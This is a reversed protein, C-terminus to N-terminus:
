LSTHPCPLPALLPDGMTRLLSPTGQFWTVGEAVLLDLLGPGLRVQEDSLAVLPCGITWAAYWEELCSDLSPSAVTSVADVGPVLEWAGAAGLHHSVHGAHYCACGKPRGTTGSTFYVASLCNKPDQLWDPKSRRQTGYTALSLTPILPVHLEYLCKEFLAPLSSGSIVAVPEADDLIDKFVKVQLRPDLMVVAAGAKLVGLHAAFLECSSNLVVGVCQDRETIHAALAGSVQNALGDLDQYSMEIGTGALKLAPYNPFQDSTREFLEHVFLVGQQHSYGLNRGPPYVETIASDPLHAQAYEGHSEKYKMLMNQLVLM